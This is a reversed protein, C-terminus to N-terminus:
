QAFVVKTNQLQYTLDKIQKQSSEREEELARIYNLTDASAMEQALKEVSM